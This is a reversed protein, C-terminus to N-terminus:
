PRAALSGRLAQASGFGLITRGASETLHNISPAIGHSFLIGDVARADFKERLRAATTATIALQRPDRDHRAPPLALTSALVVESGRAEIYHRLAALSAGTTCVDDVVVYQRYPVVEGDFIPVTRLRQRANAGTHFVRNAQVIEEDLDFGCIESIAVAYAM